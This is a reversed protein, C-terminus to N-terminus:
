RNTVNKLEVLLSTIVGVWRWRTPFKWLPWLKFMCSSPRPKSDSIFFHLLLLAQFLIAGAVFLIWCICSMPLFSVVSVSSTPDEWVGGKERESVRVKDCASGRRQWRKREWRLHSNHHSLTLFLALSVTSFYLTVLMTLRGLNWRVENWESVKFYNQLM